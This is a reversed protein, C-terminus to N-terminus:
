HQTLQPHLRERPRNGYRKISPGSTLRFDHTKNRTRNERGDSVCEGSKTVLVSNCMGKRFLRCRVYGHEVVMHSNLEEQTEHIMECLKCSLCSSPFVFIKKYMQATLRPELITPQVPKVPDSRPALSDDTESLEYVSTIFEHLSRQPKLRQATFFSPMKESAMEEEDSDMLVEDSAELLMAKTSSSDSAESNNRLWSPVYHDGLVEVSPSVESAARGESERIWSESVDESVQSGSDQSSRRESEQALMQELLSSSSTFGTSFNLLSSTEQELSETRLNLKEQELEPTTVPLAEPQQNKPPTKLLAKM